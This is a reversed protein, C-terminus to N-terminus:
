GCQSLDMDAREEELKTVSNMLNIVLMTNINMQEKLKDLEKVQNRYKIEKNNLIDLQAAVEAATYETTDKPPQIYTGSGTLGEINNDNYARMVIDHILLAVFIGIIINIYLM